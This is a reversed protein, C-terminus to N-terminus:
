NKRLKFETFEHAYKKHTHFAKEMKSLLFDIIEEKYATENDIKQWFPHKEIPTLIKDVMAENLFSNKDLLLKKTIDFEDLMQVYQERAMSIATVIQKRSIEFYLVDNEDSFATLDESNVDNHVISENNEGNKIWQDINEIGVAKAYGPVLEALVSNTQKIENELEVTIARLAKLEQEQKDVIDSLDNTNIGVAVNVLNLGDSIKGINSWAVGAVKKYDRIKMDKPHVAMGFGYGLVNPLIYDGPTVNGLIKVPVQGMFAIKVYDKEQNPQPMNGLVIPKTSVIMIKEADWTKKTVMGNKIGVIEGELFVDSLNEKPLWEAYDGAGSQYSVGINAISFGTFSVEEAVALALSGGLSVIQATLLVWEVTSSGIWSPVPLTVCAGVGVCATSSTLAAAFNLGGTGWDIIAIVVDATAIAIDTIKFTHELIYEPDFAQQSLTLGEIRGWMQDDDWFSIYNNTRGRTEKVKIAIGQYSGEVRLPYKDYNSQNADEDNIPLIAAVDKNDIDPKITVQGNIDTKGIIDTTSTISGDDLVTGLITNNNVNLNDFTSTGKVSIGDKFTGLGNVNLIGALNTPANYDIEDITTNGVNLAGSLKTMFMNNVNLTNNLSTTGDVNLEGSLNTANGGNVNLTSNLNTPGQVTLEGNLFSADDVTLTGTATINRHFAYPLFTLKERAMDVYSTGGSFDIEVKLDKNTGDWSIEAFGDPNVEGILLNIRGYQDTNTTQVEQYEVQNNADFITFRIAVTANPLINGEADVGPLEQNDPGIIVAQYSIGDTQAILHLSALLFLTLVLKKM